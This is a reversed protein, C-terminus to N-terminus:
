VRNVATWYRPRMSMTVLRGKVTEPRVPRRTHPPRLSTSNLTEASSSAEPTPSTSKPRRRDLAGPPSSPRPSATKM